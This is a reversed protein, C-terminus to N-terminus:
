MPLLGVIHQNKWMIGIKFSKAKNIGQKVIVMNFCWLNHFILIILWQHRQEQLTSTLSKQNIDVWTILISISCVIKIEELNSGSFINKSVLKKKQRKEILRSFTFHWNSITPHVHPCAKLLQPEECSLTTFNWCDFLSLISLKVQLIVNVIRALM